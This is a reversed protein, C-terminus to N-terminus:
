FFFYRWDYDLAELGGGGKGTTARVINDDFARRVNGTSGRVM